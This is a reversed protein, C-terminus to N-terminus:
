GVLGHRVLFDTRFRGEPDLRAALARFDDLRPYAARLADPAGAVSSFLKGWHPRPRFPALAEEVVPLLAQVEPRQQWTFHLGVTPRGYAPSLWLDDAAVSRIEAVLLLPAIRDGLSRLAEIAAPADRRHVLYESQLEEGHSPTFAMRFHPWREHWPGPVGGQETTSVPDVGALPHRPGDAPRAGFLESRPAWSRARGKRWVQAVAPSAYDTFLSVSDASLLLEDLHGLAADWPLDTHVEQAVDYTREVRLTLATVVGLAGLGVVAGALEAERTVRLLEGDATVLELCAVASALGRHRDGSGHTGTAVAGAVSIHPLSALNHLAWGREHLVGALEGYRTGGGVRVTGAREDLEAPVDLGSLDVLVDADAVDNFSHRSGLAHVRAGEPGHAVLERVEDVTRPRHVTGRYAHNGAWNTGATM